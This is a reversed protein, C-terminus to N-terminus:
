MGGADVPAPLAVDPGARWAMKTATPWSVTIRGFGVKVPEALLGNGFQMAEGLAQDSTTVTQSFRLVDGVKLGPVALTATLAGDLSRKELATERRLVTYKAGQAVLDLPKGDRYIEIRHVTLDGKDPLWALQLTGAKTLAEPNDIRYAIDTFASVTGGEM